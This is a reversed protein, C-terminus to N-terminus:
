PHLIKRFHEETEQLLKKKWYANKMLKRSKHTKEGKETTGTKKIIGKQKNNVRSHPFNQRPWCKEQSNHHHPIALASLKLKLM